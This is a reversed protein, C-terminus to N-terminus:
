LEISREQQTLIGTELIWPMHHQMLFYREWGAHAKDKKCAGAKHIKHPYAQSTKNKDGMTWDEGANLSGPCAM